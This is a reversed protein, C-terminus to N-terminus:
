FFKKEVMVGMQLDYGGRGKDIENAFVLLGWFFLLAPPQLFDSTSVHFFVPKHRVIMLKASFTMKM